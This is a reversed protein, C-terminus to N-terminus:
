ASKKKDERIVYNGGSVPFCLHTFRGFMIRNVQTNSCSTVNKDVDRSTNIDDVDKEQTTTSKKWRERDRKVRYQQGRLQVKDVELHLKADEM